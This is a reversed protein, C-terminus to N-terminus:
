VGLHGNSSVDREVKIVPLALKLEDGASLTPDSDHFSLSHKDLEDGLCIVRTPEYKEKLHQLFALTDPHHYPIHM